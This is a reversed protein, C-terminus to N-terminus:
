RADGGAAEASATPDPAMPDPATPDPVTRYLFTDTQTLELLLARVDLSEATFRSVLQQMACADDSEDSRAYAFRFWQRAFCAHAQPSKAALRALEPAGDFFRPDGEALETDRLEGTADIPLGNETDRFRGAADFREFAFGPPDMLVHCTACVENSRHEELRERTTLSPDPDPAVIEINEPPPPVSGCFLSGRIFMGRHIPSTEYTRARPALFAGQTLLGAHENPDLPTREFTAGSPGEVGYYDALESDLMSWPATLLTAYSGDGEYLVEHVFAETEHRMKDAISSSWSPFLEPDKDLGDLLDLELWHHFFEQVVAESREDELLREAHRRVGEADDLEGRAAADLLADDPTTGLLTYALRTAREFGDLPVVEGPRADEPPLEARYLFHPSVLLRELLLATAEREGAEEVFADHFAVLEEHEETTLPRRWARRGFRTVFSALCEASPACGYLAELDETARAAVDEAATLYQEALLPSMARGDVLLVGREDDVLRAGPSTTDGLLDRITADYEDRTLRRLPARGPRLAGDDCVLPTPAPAPREDPDPEGGPGGIAGSCASALLTALSIWRM